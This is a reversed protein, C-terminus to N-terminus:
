LAGWWALVTIGVLIPPGPHGLVSRASRMYVAGLVLAIVAFGTCAAAAVIGVARATDGHLVAGSLLLAAAATLLGVTAMHWSVHIMAKTMRAGGLATPPLSGPSLKRVVLVEGAGGHIGTGVLALLGATVLPFNVADPIKVYM